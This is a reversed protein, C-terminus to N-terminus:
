ESAHNLREMESKIHEIVETNQIIKKGNQKISFVYFVNGGFKNKFRSHSAEQLAREKTYRLSIPSM